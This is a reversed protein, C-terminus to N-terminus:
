SCYIVFFNFGESCVIDFIEFDIENLWFSNKFKVCYILRPKQKVEMRKIIGRIIIKIVRRHPNKMNSDGKKENLNM